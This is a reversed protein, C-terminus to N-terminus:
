IMPVLFTEAFSPDERAYTHIVTGDANVFSVSDITSIKTRSAATMEVVIFPNSDPIRCFLPSDVSKGPVLPLIRFWFTM